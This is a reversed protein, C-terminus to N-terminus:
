IAEVMMGLVTLDAGAGTIAKFTIAVAGSLTEAPTTNLITNYGTSLVNGFGAGVQTAAGSRYVYADVVWSVGSTTFSITAGVLTAGFYIRPIKATVTAATSGWARIRVGRNNVTLTSAPM